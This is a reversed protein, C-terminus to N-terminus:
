WDTQVCIESEQTKNKLCDIYMEFYEKAKEEGYKAILPITIDYSVPSIVPDILYFFTSTGDSNQKVPRLVRVSNKVEPYYEAAAPGLYKFNFDEFQTVKDPKINNWIVLVTDNLSARPVVAPSNTNWIHRQIKWTGDAKEWTVVYKGQDIIQDGRAFLTYRGEEIALTGIGEASITELNARVIGMNMTASWFGEIAKQGQIVESNSPFLKANESYKLALANADGSNFVTLFEKNANKIEDTVDVPQQTCGSILFGALFLCVLITNISLKKKM